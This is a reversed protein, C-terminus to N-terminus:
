FAVCVFPGKLDITTVAVLRLSDFFSLQKQEVDFVDGDRRKDAAVAAFGARDGAAAHWNM